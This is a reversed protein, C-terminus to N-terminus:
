DVRRSRRILNNRYMNPFISLCVDESNGEALFAWDMDLLKRGYKYSSGAILVLMWKCEGFSIIEYLKHVNKSLLVMFSFIAKNLYYHHLLLKRDHGIAAGFM